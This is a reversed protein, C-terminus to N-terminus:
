KKSNKKGHNMGNTRNIEKCVWEKGGGYIEEEAMRGM